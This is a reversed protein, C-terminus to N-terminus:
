QMHQLYFHQLLLGIITPHASKVTHHIKLTIMKLATLAHGEEVIHVTICLNLTNWCAVRLEVWGLIRGDSGTLM